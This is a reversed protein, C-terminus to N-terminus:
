FLLVRRLTAASAFVRGYYFLAPTYHPPTAYHQKFRACFVAYYFLLTALLFGGTFFLVPM